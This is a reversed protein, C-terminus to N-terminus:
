EHNKPPNLVSESSDSNAALKTEVRKLIEVIDRVALERRWLDDEQERVSIMRASKLADAQEEAAERIATLLTAKVTTRKLEM